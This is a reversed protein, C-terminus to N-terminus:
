AVVGGVCLLKGFIKLNSLSLLKKDVPVIWKQTKLREEMFEEYNKPKARKLMAAEKKTPLGMEKRIQDESNEEPRPRPWRDRYVPQIRESDSQVRHVNGFSETGNTPDYPVDFSYGWPLYKPPQKLFNIPDGPARFDRHQHWPITDPGVSFQMWAGYKLLAGRNASDPGSVTLSSTTAKSHVAIFSPASSYFQDSDPPFEISVWIPKPIIKYYAYHPIQLRYKPFYYGYNGHPLIKFPDVPRTTLYAIPTTIQWPTIAYGTPIHHYNPEIDLNAFPAFNNMPYDNHDAAYGELGVAITRMDSVARAVKARSTTGAFNLLGIAALISIIGVVLLLEILSFAKSIQLKM